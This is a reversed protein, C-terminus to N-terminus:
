ISKVVARKWRNILNGLEGLELCYARGPAPIEVDATPRYECDSAVTDFLLLVQIRQFLDRCNNALLLATRRPGLDVTAAVFGASYRRLYAPVFCFM